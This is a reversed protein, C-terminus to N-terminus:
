EPRVIEYDLGERDLREKMRETVCRQWTNIRTGLIDQEKGYNIVQQIDGEDIFKLIKYFMYDDLNIHNM